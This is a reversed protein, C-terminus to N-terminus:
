TTVTGNRHEKWTQNLEDKRIKWIWTPIIPGVARSLHYDYMVKFAALQEPPTSAQLAREAAAERSASNRSLSGYSIALKIVGLSLILMLVGTVIRAVNVQATHASTTQLAVILVILAGAIGIAVIARCVNAMTEALHKTWWASEAVNKLARLPGPPDASAFYPETMSRKRARKKASSPCRVLLDSLETSPIQWGLGDQLDVKRRFQQATSKVADSRYLCLEAVIACAAVLFPVPEPPLLNISAGTVFGLIKSALSAGWWYKACHDLAEALAFPALAPVTAPEAAPM